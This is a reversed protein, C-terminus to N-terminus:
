PDSEDDITADIGDDPDEADLPETDAIEHGSSDGETVTFAAEFMFPPLGITIPSKDGVEIVLKENDESLHSLFALMLDRWRPNRWSKTKSRRLKFMYDANGFPTEGDESFIVRSVIKVHREPTLHPSVSVGYHWYIGSKPLFGILKRRGELGGKWAFSVQGENDDKRPFWWALFDNAMPTPVLGRSALYQELAQRILDVVKRNADFWEIGQGRSGTRLFESLEIEAMLKIPFSDGLLKQFDDHTSFGIFGRSHPVLPIPANRLAHKKAAVDIGGRFDYIRVHTPLTTIPLWNSILREPLNEITRSKHLHAQRWVEVGVDPIEKRERGMEYEELADLLEHLGDSWSREFNIYQAHAILFPADFDALRLPIIFEADGIKKAVETAIQIENRVGRKKVSISNAILLVKRAKIRLAEELKAAWDDGGRLRLVDAWVEYGMASLKAGLWLTFDNDEPAAHSIFIANRNSM